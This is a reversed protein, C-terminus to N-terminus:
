SLLSVCSQLLWCLAPLWVMASAWGFRDPGPQHSGVVKNKTGVELGPGILSLWVNGLVTGNPHRSVTPWGGVEEHWSGGTLSRRFGKEGYLKRRWLGRGADRGFVLSPPQSGWYLLNQIFLTEEKQHPRLKGLEFAYCCLPLQLIIVYISYVFSFSCAVVVYIHQTFSPLFNSYKM